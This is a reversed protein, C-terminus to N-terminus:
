MEVAALWSAQMWDQPDMSSATIGPKWLRSLGSTNGRGGRGLAGQILYHDMHVLMVPACKPVQISLCVTLTILGKGLLVVCHGRSPGSGLGSLRSFLASVIPGEQYLIKQCNMVFSFLFKAGPQSTSWFITGACFFSCTYFMSQFRNVTGRAEPEQPGNRSLGPFKEPRFLWKKTTWRYILVSFHIRRLSRAHLSGGKM